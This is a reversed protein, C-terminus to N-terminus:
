GLSKAQPSVAPPSSPFFPRRGAGLRWFSLTPMFPDTIPTSESSVPIPSSLPPSQPESLTFASPALEHYPLKPREAPTLGAAPM